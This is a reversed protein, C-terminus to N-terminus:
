IGGISAQSINNGQQVGGADQREEGTTNRTSGDVVEEVVERKKRSGMFADDFEEEMRSVVMEAEVEMKDLERETIITSM